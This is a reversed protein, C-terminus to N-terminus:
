QTSLPLAFEPYRKDGAGQPISPKVFFHEQWSSEKMGGSMFVLPCRPFASSLM